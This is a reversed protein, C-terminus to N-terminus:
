GRKKRLYDPFTGEYDMNVNWFEKMRSYPLKSELLVFYIFFNAGIVWGITGFGFNEPKWFKKM